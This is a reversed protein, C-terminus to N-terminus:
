KVNEQNEVIHEQCIREGERVKWSGWNLSGSELPKSLDASRIGPSSNCARFANLHIHEFKIPFMLVSENWDPTASNNEAYLYIDQWM